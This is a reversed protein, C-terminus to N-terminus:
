DDVSVPVHEKRTVKLKIGVVMKELLANFTVAWCPAGAAVANPELFEEKEGEVVASLIEVDDTEKIRESSKVEVFTAFPIRTTFQFVPGNVDTATFDTITKYNINKDIFGDIIVKAWCGEKSKSRAEDMPLTILKFDTIVVKKDIDIIRFLAPSPPSITLRQVVLEQKEGWGVIVPVQLLKPSKEKPEPEHCVQPQVWPKQQPQYRNTNYSM